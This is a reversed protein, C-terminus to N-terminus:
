FHGYLKGISSTILVKRDGQIWCNIFINKITKHRYTHQSNVKNFTEELNTM